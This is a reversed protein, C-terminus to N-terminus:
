PDLVRRRDAPSMKEAAIRLVLRPARHHNRALFALTERPKKSYAVKLLWGTAKRVLDDSDELLRDVIAFAQATHLGRSAAPVLAVAAARRKWRNPSDTWPPLRALLEPENGLSAAILRLSVGDCHAWNRVYRDLWREFLQFEAAHCRRAFRRYLYCVLAGEEAGSTKWLGQCLANRAAPPWDRIIRHVEAALEKVRPSPVGRALIEEKHFRQIAARFRPVALEELRADIWALLGAIAERTPAPSAQARSGM